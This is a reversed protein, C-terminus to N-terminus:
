LHVFSMSVILSEDLCFNWMEDQHPLLDSEGRSMFEDSKAEMGRLNLRGSNRMLCSDRRRTANIHYLM